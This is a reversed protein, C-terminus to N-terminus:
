EFLYWKDPVFGKVDKNSLPFAIGYGTYNHEFSDFRTAMYALEGTEDEYELLWSFPQGHGKDNYELVSYRFGMRMLRINNRYRKSTAAALAKEYLSFVKDADILKMLIDPSDEIPAQGDLLEEAMRIIELVYPAGEGFLAGLKELCSEMSLSNDYGIRGFCYLNHLHNWIHFCEIQTGAGLIGNDKYYRWISQLEDAMPIFRQRCGFVGMYYDYFAVESGHEKWKRLTDTFHTDALCSGDAKGCTRLGSEAWTSMDCFLSSSLELGEPCEWLNTYLLMDMKMEPHVKSVRLAVENMFYTYNEVKSYPACKECCCQENIGDMPWLAVIDVVPNDTIWQILNESLRDICETNRSCFVWQGYPSEESSPRFRKGDSGLRYYEPHTDAYKEPFYKNGDFPLWMRVADHHGVTLRIGRKEIEPILGLSKWGEYISCWTLIRNYRNKVLWDLFPLNLGHDPDGACDGYQVIACRYPRDSGSKVYRGDEISLSDLVPIHEGADIDPHSYSALVCGAYRELFEYVAYVTGRERDSFGASGSILVSDGTIRILMGEEGTLLSSFEERSVIEEAAPNRYPDGIIFRKDAGECRYTSLIKSLYKELEDAAFIERSTPNEPLIVSYADGRLLLM